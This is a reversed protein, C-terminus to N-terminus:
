CPTYTFGINRLIYELILIPPLKPRRMDSAVRSKESYNETVAVAFPDGLVALLILTRTPHRRDNMYCALRKSCCGAASVQPPTGTNLFDKMDSEYSAPQVYRYDVSSTQSKGKFYLDEIYTKFKRNFDHLFWLFLIVDYM